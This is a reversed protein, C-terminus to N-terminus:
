QQVEQKPIAGVRRLRSLVSKARLKTADTPNELMEQLVEALRPATAFLEAFSEEPILQAVYRTAGKYPARVCWGHNTNVAEYRM